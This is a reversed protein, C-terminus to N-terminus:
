GSRAPHRPESARIAPDEPTKHVILTQVRYLDVVKMALRSAFTHRLDHFHFDPIEASRLAPYWYRDFAHMLRRQTRRICLWISDGTLEGQARCGQPTEGL